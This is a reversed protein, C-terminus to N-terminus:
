FRANFHIGAMILLLDSAMQNNSFPEVSRSPWPNVLAGRVRPVSSVVHVQAPADNESEAPGNLAKVQQAVNNIFTLGSGTGFLIVINMIWFDLSTCIDKLSDGSGRVASPAAAGVMEALSVSKYGPPTAKGQRKVTKLLPTSDKASTDQDENAAFWAPPNTDRIGASLDAEASRTERIPSEASRTRVFESKSLKRNLWPILLVGQMLLLPVLIYM